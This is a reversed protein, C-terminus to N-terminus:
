HLIYIDNEMDTRLAYQLLAEIHWHYYTWSPNLPKNSYLLLLLLLVVFLLCLYTVLCIVYSLVCDFPSLERHNM